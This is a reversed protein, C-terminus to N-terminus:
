HQIWTEHKLDIEKRIIKKGIRYFFTVLVYWNQRKM